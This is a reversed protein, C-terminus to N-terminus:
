FSFYKSMISFVNFNKVNESKVSFVPVNWTQVAIEFSQNKGFPEVEFSNETNSSPVPIKSAVKNITQNGTVNEYVGFQKYM